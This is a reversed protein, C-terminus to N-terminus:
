RSPSAVIPTPTGTLKAQMRQAAPCGATSGVAESLSTDGSRLAGELISAQVAPDLLWANFAGWRKTAHQLAEYVGPKMLDPMRGDPETIRVGCLKEYYAPLGTWIRGDQRVPTFPRGGNEKAANYSLTAGYMYESPVDPEIVTSSPAPRPASSSCATLAWLLCCLLLAGATVTRRLSTPSPGPM